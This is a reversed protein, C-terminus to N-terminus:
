HQLGQYIRNIEEISLETIEAVDKATYGKMLMNQAVIMTKDHMGQQMGQQVGDQKAAEERRQLYNMFEDETNDNIVAILHDIMAENANPRSEIYSFIQNLLNKGAQLFYFSQNPHTLLWQTLEEVLRDRSHKLMYEFMLDPDFQALADDSIQTLDILEFQGLNLKAALAADEFCDTMVTSYPYPTVEGHYLVVPIVIPLCSAGQDLHRQMIQISYLLMRFAMLHEAKSQHEWLFYLYADKDNVKVAYLVDAVVKRLNHQIFETPKKVLTKFDIRDVLHAPLHQKILKVVKRKESLNAKFFADHATLVEKKKEPKQERPQDSQKAQRRDKAQDIDKNKTM